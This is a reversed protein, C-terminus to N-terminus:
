GTAAPRGTKRTEDGHGSGTSPGIGLEKRVSAYKLALRLLLEVPVPVPAPRGDRNGAEWARVTRGDVGLLAGLAAGTLGLRARAQRLQGPTMTEPNRQSTKALGNRRPTAGHAEIIDIEKM